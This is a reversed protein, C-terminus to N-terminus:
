RAPRAALDTCGRLAAYRAEARHAAAGTPEVPQGTKSVVAPIFRATLPATRM